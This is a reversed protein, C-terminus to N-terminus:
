PGVEVETVEQFHSVLFYRNVAIGVFATTPARAFDTLEPHKELFLSLAQSDADKDLVKARGVGTVSIAGYLDRSENQSNHVLFSVQANAMINEYKRTTAPTLLYCHHLDAEVAFAVLSAYPQNNKQTSLVALRQSDFLEAMRSMARSQSHNM